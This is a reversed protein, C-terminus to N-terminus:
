QNSRFSKLKRKQEGSTTFNGPSLWGSLSSEVIPWEIDIISLWDTDRNRQKRTMAQRFRGEFTFGLREAANRSALNLSDCRWAVRRYGLSFAKKLLLFIAETGMATRQMKPSWTVHGIELAGNVVDINSFCVVGVALGSNIEAVAWAVLGPDNIKNEVWLQMEQLCNPRGAGLWTWDRDDPARSFAELLDDCHSIELPLLNCHHGSISTRTPFPAPQWDSLPFGVPQGYKNTNM